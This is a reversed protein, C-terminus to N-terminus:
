VKIIHFPHCVFPNHKEAAELARRVRDEPLMVETSMAALAGLAFDQGAGATAYGHLSRIVSYDNQLTFVKGNLCILFMTDSRDANGDSKINIGTNTFAQQVENAVVTVLYQLEDENRRIKRFFLNHEVAQSGRVGGAFAIFFRKGKEFFKPTSTQDKTTTSGLFSDCGLVAEYGAIEANDDFIPEEVAVICTM